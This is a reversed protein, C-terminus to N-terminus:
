LYKGIACVQGSLGREKDAKMQEELGPRFTVNVRRDDAPDRWVTAMPNETSSSASDVTTWSHATQFPPLRVTTVPLSEALRVEVRLDKVVQGPNVHVSYKYV